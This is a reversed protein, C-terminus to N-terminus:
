GLLGWIFGLFGEEVCLDIKVGRLQCSVLRKKGGHLISWDFGGEEEGAYGFQYFDIEVVLLLWGERDACHWCPVVLAPIDTDKAAAYFCLVSPLGNKPCGVSLSFGPPTCAAAAFSM